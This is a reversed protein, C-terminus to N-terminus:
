DVCDVLVYFIFVPIDVQWWQAVMGWLETAVECTFFNHNVTEVDDGCVPCLLSGLDLGRRDLNVKTPLRNLRLRWGFVNVKSPVMRNWRTAVVDVELVKMNIKM